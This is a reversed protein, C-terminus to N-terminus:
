LVALTFYVKLETRFDTGGRHRCSVEDKRRRRSRGLPGPWEPKNIFIHFANRTDGVGDKM